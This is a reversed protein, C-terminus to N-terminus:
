PGISPPNPPSTVTGNTSSTVNGYTIPETSIVLNDMYIVTDVLFGMDAPGFLYLHNAGGTGDRMYNDKYRKDMGLVGDKWIQYIGNNSNATDSFKLHFIMNMWRGLDKKPDPYQFYPPEIYQSGGGWKYSMTGTPWDVANWSEWSGYNNDTYINSWLMVTKNHAKANRERPVWNTPFFVDFQIWIDNLHQDFDYQLKSGAEIQNDPYGKFTFKVSYKGDKPKESSIKPGGYDGAVGGFHIGDQSHSLNGSEFGDSFTLAQSVNTIILMVSGGVLLLVRSLNLTTHSIM